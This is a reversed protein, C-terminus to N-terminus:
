LLQLVRRGIEIASSARVNELPVETIVESRNANLCGRDMCRILM